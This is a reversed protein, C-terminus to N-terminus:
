HVMPRVLLVGYTILYLLTVEGCVRFHHLARPHATMSCRSVIVKAACPGGGGRRVAAERREMRPPRQPEGAADGGDAGAARGAAAGAEGRGLRLRVDTFIHDLYRTYIERHPDRRAGYKFRTFPTIGTDRRIFGNLGCHQLTHPCM